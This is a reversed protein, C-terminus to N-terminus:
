CDLPEVAAMLASTLLFEPFLDTTLILADSSQM